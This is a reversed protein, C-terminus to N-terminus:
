NGGPLSRGDVWGYKEAMAGLQHRIHKIQTGTLTPETDLLLETIEGEFESTTLLYCFGESDKDGMAGAAPSMMSGSAPERQASAVIRAASAKPGRDGMEVEFEMTMGPVVSSKESLLDNVHLFIDEGGGVPAVFGYGRIQDFRVVKGIM